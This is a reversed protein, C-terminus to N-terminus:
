NKYVADLIERFNPNNIVAKADEERNFAAVVGFSYMYTQNYFATDFEDKDMDYVIIYMDNNKRENRRNYYAAINLLQNLALIRKLQQETLANNKDTLHEINPNNCHGKIIEGHHGTFCLNRENKLFIDTVIDKYTLGSLRKYKICDLTSNERDIEYGEPAVIKLEKTEM